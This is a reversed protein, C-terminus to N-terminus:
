EIGVQGEIDLALSDGQVAISGISIQQLTIATASRESATRLMKTVLSGADVKLSRPVLAALLPELLRDLEHDSTLKEVRVDTFGITAGQAQPLVSIEADGSWALGVCAGAFNSGVKGTLHLDLLIRNGAFRLHPDQAYLFCGPSDRKGRLYYRGDPASFLQKVLARQLPQPGVTLTLAQVPLPALLLCFLLFRM